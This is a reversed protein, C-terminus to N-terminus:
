LWYNKRQDLAVETLKEIEEQTHKHSNYNKRGFAILFDVLEKTSLNVIINKFIDIEKSRVRDSLVKDNPDNCALLVNLAMEKELLNIEKKLYRNVIEIEVEAKNVVSM